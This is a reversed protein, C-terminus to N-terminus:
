MGLSSKTNESEVFFCMELATDPKGSCWSWTYRKYLSARLLRRPKEVLILVPKEGTAGRM